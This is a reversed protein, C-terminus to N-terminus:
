TEVIFSKWHGVLPAGGYFFVQGENINGTGWWLIALGQLQLVPLERRAQKNKRWFNKFHLKISWLQPGSYRIHQQKQQKQQVTCQLKFITTTTTCYITRIANNNNRGNDSLREGQSFAPIIGGAEFGGLCSFWGIWDWCTASATKKKVRLIKSDSSDSAPLGEDIHLPTHRWELSRQRYMCYCVVPSM